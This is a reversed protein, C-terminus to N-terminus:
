KTNTNRLDYWLSRELLFTHSEESVSWYQVIILVDHFTRTWKCAPVWDLLSNAPHSSDCDRSSNLSIFGNVLRIKQTLNMCTCSMKKPQADYFPLFICRYKIIKMGKTDTLWSFFLMLQKKWPTCSIFWRCKWITAPCSNWQLFLSNEDSSNDWWLKHM